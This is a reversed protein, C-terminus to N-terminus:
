FDGINALTRDLAVDQGASSRVLRRQARTGHQGKQSDFEVNVEPELIVLFHFGAQVTDPPKHLSDVHV